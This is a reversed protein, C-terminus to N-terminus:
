SSHDLFSLSFILLYIGKKLTLSKFKKLCLMCQFAGSYTGILCSFAQGPGRKIENEMKVPLVSMEGHLKLAKVIRPVWYFKGYSLRLKLKWWCFCMEVKNLCVNFNKVKNYQFSYKGCIFFFWCSGESIGFCQCLSHLLAKRLCVVFSFHQSAVLSCFYVSDYSWMDEVLKYETRLLKIRWGSLSGLTFWSTVLM